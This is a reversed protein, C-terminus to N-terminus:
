AGIPPVIYRPMRPGRDNKPHRVLLVPVASARAVRIAVSGGVLGALPLRARTGM